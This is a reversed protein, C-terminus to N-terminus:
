GLITNVEALEVATLQWDAARVNSEVHALKTAGSIVSCVAPQALLWAQALENLGRGHDAA